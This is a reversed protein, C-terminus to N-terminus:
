SDSDGPQQPAFPNPPPKGVRRLTTWGHEDIARAILQAIDETLAACLGEVQKAGARAAEGGAAGKGAAAVFQAAAGAVADGAADGAAAYRAAAEVMRAAHRRHAVLWADRFGIRIGARIGAEAAASADDRSIAAQAVHLALAELERRVVRRSRARWRDGSPRGRAHVLRPWAAVQQAVAKVLADAGLEIPTM